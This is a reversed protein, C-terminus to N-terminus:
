VSAGVVAVAGVVTRPGGGVQADVIDTRSYGAELGGVGLTDVGMGYHM